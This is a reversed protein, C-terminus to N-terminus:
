KYKSKPILKCINFFILKQFIQAEKTFRVYSLLLDENGPLTSEHLQISFLSTKLYGCLSDEVGQAKEDIRTQM